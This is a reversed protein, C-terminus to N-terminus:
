HYTQLISMILKLIQHISSNLLIRIKPKNTLLAWNFDISVDDKEKYQVALQVKQYNRVEKRGDELVYNYSFKDNDKYFIVKFDITNEEPPKWKYNQYWTGKISKVGDRCYDREVPLFM